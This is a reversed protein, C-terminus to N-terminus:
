VEKSGTRRGLVGEGLGKKTGGPSDQCVRVSKVDWFVMDAVAGREMMCALM